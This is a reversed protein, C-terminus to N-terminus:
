KTPWALLDFARQRPAADGVSDYVAILEDRADGHLNGVLLEVLRWEAAPRLPISATPQREGVLSGSLRDLFGSLLGFVRELDFVPNPDDFLLNKLMERGTDDALSPADGERPFLDVATADGRVLALDKKAPATFAGRVGIRVKGVIDTFRKVLEEQRGLLSLIPPIRLTVTRRWTPTNAFAGNESRYGVCKVDIDISQVLGLLLSGVGPVQLQFTLLEARRDGDLDVVLMATVDDAVAQTRAKTFQPGNTTSLFTWVKRRHAIVFDPIRDGDVDGRQLLKRDGLVLTSGPAVAAKPTSDEFQALDVVIPAAFTGNAQQLWFSHKEDERTLLDRRGDGNLDETEIQPIVLSGQLEEDLADTGADVNTQVPVPLPEMAVFRPAGDDGTAEQLFPQVGRLTPLLLDARGDRNLDQVFPSFQPKGTRLAFRARRALPQMTLERSAPDKPWVVFATGTPDALVVEDGAVGNVDAIALLTHAGDRLDVADRPALGAGDTTADHRVISARGDPSQVVVLLEKVGDGDTDALVQAVVNPMPALRSATSPGQAPLAVAGLVVVAAVVVRKM